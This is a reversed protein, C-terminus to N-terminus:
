LSSPAVEPCLFVRGLLDPGFAEPLVLNPTEMGVSYSGKKGNVSPECIWCFPLPTEAAKEEPLIPGLATGARLCLRSFVWPLSLDLPIAWGGLSRTGSCKVLLATGWLALWHGLCFPRSAKELSDTVPLLIHADLRGVTPWGWGSFRVSALQLSSKIIFNRDQHM